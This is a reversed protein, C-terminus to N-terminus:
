TNISLFYFCLLLSVSVLVYFGKGPGPISVPFEQVWLPRTVV